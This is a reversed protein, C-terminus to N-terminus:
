FTSARMNAKETFKDIYDNKLDSDDYAHTESTSYVHPTKSMPLNHYSDVSSCQVRDIVGNMRIISDANEVMFKRYQTNTKINNEELVQKNKNYDPRWKSYKIGDITQEEIFSM